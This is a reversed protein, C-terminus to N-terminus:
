KKQNNLFEYVKEVWDKFEDFSMEHKAYNCKSCCPVCNEETYGIDSNFRDVGNAKLPELTKVMYKPNPRIQPEIGCYFCNSTILEYFKEFTIDFILNRKNSGIRYDKYLRNVYGYHEYKEHKRVSALSATCSICAVRKKNVIDGSRLFANRGCECVAVWKKNERYLVTLRGIKVGSYDVVKPGKRNEIELYKM